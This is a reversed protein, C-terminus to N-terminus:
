RAMRVHQAGVWGEGMGGEGHEGEGGRVVRGVSLLLSVLELPEDFLQLRLECLRALLLKLELCGQAELLGIGLQAGRAAGVM